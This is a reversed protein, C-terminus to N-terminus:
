RMLPSTPEDSIGKDHRERMERFAQVAHRIDEPQATIDIQDLRTALEEIGILAAINDARMYWETVPLQGAEWRTTSYAFARLFRLLGDDTKIFQRVWQQPESFGSWLGWMHLLRGLHRQQDLKPAHARIRQVAAARLAPIDATRLALVEPDAKRREEDEELRLIHVLLYLGTSNDTAQQLLKARQEPDQETTLLSRLLQTARDLPPISFAGTSWRQPDDGINVLATMFPLANSRNLDEKYTALRHLMADLLGGESLARFQKTLQEADALLTRTHQVQAERLQNAPITLQFYRDFIRDHAVRLAREWQPYPEIGPTGTPEPFLGTLLHRTATVRASAASGVLEDITANYQKSSDSAKIRHATTTLQEKASPLQRYIRPEFHRLVELGILDIPNVELVSNPRFVGAHFTLESIFRKVDRLTTFFPAIGETFLAAWRQEDFNAPDAAFLQSLDDNLIELVRNPPPLPIDFGVNVIKKLYQRGDVNLAIELAHEVTDRQCLLLYIIKPFDANTKVLQFLSATEIPTLRDIDDMIVLVNNELKRLDNALETKQEQLTKSNAAAIASIADAVKDAIEASLACSIGLLFAIGFIVIATARLYPNSIVIAPIGIVSLMITLTGIIKPVNQYISAHLRLRAAYARLRGIAKKNNKKKATGITTALDDFFATFLPDQAAWAWPTFELVQPPNSANTVHELLLNKLSTKGTGWEGYIAIILSDMGAWTDIATALSAAFTDRNLKDQTHGTIPRDTNFFAQHSRPRNTKPETM